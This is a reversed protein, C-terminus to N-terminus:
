KEYLYSHKLYWDWYKKIDSQLRYSKKQQLLTHTKDMNAVWRFSDWRHQPYRNWEAIVPQATINEVTKVISQLTTEKGSGINYIGSPDINLYPLRQLYDIVHDIYIYDHNLNPAALKFPKSHLVAKFLSPFFKTPEEFPGFVTFLRATIINKQTSKAIFECLLSQCAKAVAYYSNPHLVQDEKMSSSSFGYESSSGINIFAELSLQECAQLLYLTGLINVKLIEEPNNQWHSAGKTACHYVIQPRAVRICNEISRIDLLDSYQIILSTHNAIEQLRWLDSSKRLILYVTNGETLLRKALHSGIFGNGGTILISKNKM